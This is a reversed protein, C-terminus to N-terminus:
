LPMRGSYLVFFLPYAFAFGVQLDSSTPGLVSVLLLSNMLLIVVM